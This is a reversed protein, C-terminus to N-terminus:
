TQVNQKGGHQKNLNFINYNLYHSSTPSYWDM